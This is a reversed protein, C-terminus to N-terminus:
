GIYMLVDGPNVIQGNPVTISLVTGAAGCPIENFVKMAEILGVIQGAAVVDGEQVFPPSSPSSSTYFIGTMPSTVPIGKPASPATPVAPAAEYAYIEEVEVMVAEGEVPARKAAPRRRFAITLEGSQLRAESLRYEQMVDALESITAKYDAVPSIIASASYSSYRATKTLDHSGHLRWVSEDRVKPTGNTWM